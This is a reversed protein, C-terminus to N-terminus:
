RPLGINAEQAEAIYRLYDEYLIYGEQLLKAAAEQVRNVYGQHTGYREELSPRPDDGREAATTAFPFYSGTGSCVEGEMFGAARVNWPTYTAIPAELYVSRIGGLDNGDADVQSVLVTYQTGPIHQPPYLTYDNMFKHNYQGKYTVGPIQPFHVQDAPVLTGDAIRPHRSAPPEIGFAIWSRMRVVAMRLTAAYGNNPNSLHQCIGHSPVAAPVHQTSANVYYRVNDPLPLDHQGLPDTVILSARGQWFEAANDVQMVKPCTGSERCKALLGDTRGSIPDTIVDYTFPFEDGVQFHQEAARSWYTTMAFEHNFWGLRGGSIVPIIGDFVIRGEEDENFGEYLMHRLFRGSQSIGLAQAWRIRNHGNAALPNEDSTDYRLFSILDRTAAFGLGMVIPDQAEYVLNYIHDTSFGGPKCIHTNSPTMDTGDPCYGFSWQDRPVVEDPAHPGARRLLVADAMSEEVAPYNTATGGGGTGVTFAPADFIFESTIWKRIPTGDGNKAVPFRATLRGGGPELDGHWGSWVLTFGHRMMFGDGADAALGSGFDGTRALNLATNSVIRGRNNVDYFLTDNGREMRVPKLIVFDVDYEVMGRRNQPASQIYVINAHRPDNPDIEGFARGVIKEYQGVGGFVRGEFAPSEVEDIVIRTIRADAATSLLFLALVAALVDVIKRRGM